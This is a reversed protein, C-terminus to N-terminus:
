SRGAVVDYWHKMGHLFLREPATSTGGGRGADSGAPMHAQNQWRRLAEALQNLVLATSRAHGGSHEPTATPYNGSAGGDARRGYLNGSWPDFEWTGGGAGGGSAGGPGGGGSTGGAGGGGRRGGRHPKKRIPSDSPAWTLASLIAGGVADLFVEGFVMSGYEIIAQVKDDNRGRQQGNQTPGTGGTGQNPDSAWQSWMGRGYLLGGVAFPDLQSMSGPGPYQAGIMAAVQRGGESQQLAAGLETYAAAPNDLMNSVDFGYRNKHTGFASPRGALGAMAAVASAGDSGGGPTPTMPMPSFNSQFPNSQEGTLQGRLAAQAPSMYQPNQGPLRVTRYRHGTAAHDVVRFRTTM